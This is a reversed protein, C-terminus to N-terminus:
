QCIGAMRKIAYELEVVNDNDGDFYLLVDPHEVNKNASVGDKITKVLAKTKGYCLLHEESVLEKSHITLGATPMTIETNDGNIITIECEYLNKIRADDDDLAENMTKTVYSFLDAKSMVRIANLSKWTYTQLEDLLLRLQGADSTKVLVIFEEEKTKSTEKNNELMVSQMEESVSFTVQSIAENEKMKSIYYDFENWNIKSYHMVAIGEPGSMSLKVQSEAFSIDSLTYDSPKVGKSKKLHAEIKAFTVEKTQAHIASGLLLFVLLTSCKM